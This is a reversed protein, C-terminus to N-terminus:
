ASRRVTRPVLFDVAPGWRFRADALCPTLASNQINFSASYRMEPIRDFDRIPTRKPRDFSVNHGFIYARGTHGDVAKMAEAAAPDGRELLTILRSLARQEGALLRQAIESM